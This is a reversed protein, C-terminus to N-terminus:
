ASPRRCGIPTVWARHMTCAPVSQRQREARLLQLRVLLLSQQAMPLQSMPLLTEAQLALSLARQCDRQRVHWACAVTLTAREDGQAASLAQELAALDENVIFLQM